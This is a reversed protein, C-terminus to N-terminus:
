VIKKLWFNRKFLILCPIAKASLFIDSIIFFPYIHLHTFHGIYACVTFQIVWLYGSDMLFAVVGQGGARIAFYVTHIITDFPTTMVTVYLMFIAMRHVDDEVNYCHALPKAFVACLVSTIIAIIIGTFLLQNVVTRAGQFNNRGLEHGVMVATVSGISYFICKFLNSITFVIDIAAVVHLGRMSYCQFIASMGLAWAIENVLLPTGRWAIDKIINFPIRMSAFAKRIFPYRFDNRHTYLIVLAAELIRSVVTAIAAGTIGMAPFGLHGFILVYNGALNAFLAILSAVMPFQTQGYERLTSAYVATATFLPLGTLMIFLYRRALSLTESVSESPNDGNIFLGLLTDSYCAFVICCLLTVGFCFLFKFRFCHRVGADNKAGVFQTSLISPGSLAGFVALFYIFILQNVIAVAAMPTTGTQGIMVNDLLNVANTVTNQIVLPLMLTFFQRYFPRDGLTSKSFFPM